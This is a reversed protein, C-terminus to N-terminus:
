KKPSFCAPLLIYFFRTAAARAHPTASKLSTHGLQLQDCCCHSSLGCKMCAETLCNVHSASVVSARTDEHAVQVRYFGLFNWRVETGAAKARPREGKNVFVTMMMLVPLLRNMGVASRHGKEYIELQQEGVSGSRM